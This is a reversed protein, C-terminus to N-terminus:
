TVRMPRIQTVGSTLLLDYARPDGAAALFYWPRPVEYYAAEYTDSPDLKHSACWKLFEPNAKRLVVNGEKDYLMPWPMSNAYELAQKAEETLYDFHVQEGKGIRLLISAMRLKVKPDDSLAFIEKANAVAGPKGNLLDQFPYKKNNLLEQAKRQNSQSSHKTQM